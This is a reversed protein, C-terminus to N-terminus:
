IIGRDLTHTHSRARVRACMYTKVKPM